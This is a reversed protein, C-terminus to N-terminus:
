ARVGLLELEDNVATWLKAALVRRDGELIPTAGFIVNAEFRRVQLLRFFHGAFTMSGWWCITEAVPGDEPEVEYRIGAYHVPIRQRAALELASSKFPLLEGGSSTGEPFLVVGLGRQLFSEVSEMLRLLDRRNNRDVFITNVARCLRGVVPWDAVESKAIFTCDLLSALVLVDVYSLHNAVLLFPGHPAANRVNVTVGMVRICARAWSQYVGGRFRLSEHGAIRHVLGGAVLWFYHGGTVFGLVSLRFIARLLKM